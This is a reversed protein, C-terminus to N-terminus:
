KHCLNLDHVQPGGIENNGEGIEELYSSAPTTPVTEPNIDACLAPSPYHMGPMASGTVERSQLGPRATTDNGIDSRHFTSGSPEDIRTPPPIAVGEDSPGPRFIASGQSALRHNM